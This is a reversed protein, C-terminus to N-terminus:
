AALNRLSIEGSSFSRAGEATELLLAGDTGVGQVEGHVQRGDPLHLIVPRQHHLHGDSWEERLGAFGDRAFDDLVGALHRLILGLKRAPDIDRGSLQQLDVAPQDISRLLSEPLRLNLGIGIVAASPGDIDGQLEILIGALKRDAHLLDNPWKLNVGAIDLERMARLLAVGVALSLGSLAAAGSDFRWLLSFTLSNGLGAQWSRGRRGRGATQLEAAVCTGHPAGLAARQMLYSNTSAICDHFEFQFRGAQSGLAERVSAEDLFRLPQPLRYGKGRVSFLPVGLREADQLANWVTARTVNFRRAIAEGSHFQGDALLRLIPFTLANM